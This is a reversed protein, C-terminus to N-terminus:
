VEAANPIDALLRGKIAATDPSLAAILGRSFPALQLLVIAIFLAVPLYAWSGIIRAQGHVLLKAFFCAAIAGTLVLVILESWAEVAGFAAPMFVLLAALLIEIAVDFGTTSVGTADYIVHVYRGRRQRANSSAPQQAESTDQTM